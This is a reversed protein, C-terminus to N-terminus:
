YSCTSCGLGHNQDHKPSKGVNPWLNVLYPSPQGAPVLPCGSDPVREFTRDRARTQQVVVIEFDLKVCFDPHIGGGGGSLKNLEGNVQNEM